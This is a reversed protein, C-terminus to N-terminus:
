VVGRRPEEEVVSSLGDGCKGWGVGDLVSGDGAMMKRLAKMPPETCVVRKTLADAPLEKGAMYRLVDVGGAM